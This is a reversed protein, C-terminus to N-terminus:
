KFGIFIEDICTFMPKIEFRFTMQLDFNTHVKFSFIKLIISEFGSFTGDICSFM